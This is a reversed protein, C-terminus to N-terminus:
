EKTSKRVIKRKVFRLVRVVFKKTKHFGASAIFRKTKYQKRQGKQMLSYYYRAKKYDGNIYSDSFADKLYVEFATAKFQEKKEASMIPIRNITECQIVYLDHSYDILKLYSEKSRSRSTSDEHNVVTYLIEDIYKYNSEYLLPLMLQANQGRKNYSFLTKSPIREFVFQTKVFFSGPVFICDERKIVDLFYDRDKNKREFVDIVTDYNPYKISDCKCICLDIDPNKEMFNIKREFCNPKLVDDSDFWMFYESDVYRLGMNIADTQGSNCKARLLMCSYGVRELKAFYETIIEVTRDTSCDDIIILQADTFTQSLFSDLCKGIFRESNYAPMIISIKKM